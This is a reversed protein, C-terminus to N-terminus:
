FGFVVKGVFTWITLAKTKGTHIHSSFWLTFSLSALGHQLGHPELTPCSKALSCSYMAIEFLLHQWYNLYKQM